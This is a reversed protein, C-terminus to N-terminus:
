VTLGYTTPELGVGPASRLGLYDTTDADVGSRRRRHRQSSDPVFSNFVTDFIPRATMAAPSLQIMPPSASVPWTGDKDSSPYGEREARVHGSPEPLPDTIAAPQGLSYLAPFCADHVDLVDVMQEEAERRRQTAAFIGADATFHAERIARLGLCAFVNWPWKGARRFGLDPQGPARLHVPLYVVVEEDHEGIGRKPPITGRSRSSRPMYMTM